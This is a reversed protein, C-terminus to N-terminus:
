LMQFAPFIIKYYDFIYMSKKKKKQYLSKILHDSLRQHTTIAYQLFTRAERPHPVPYRGPLTVQRITYCFAFRRSM